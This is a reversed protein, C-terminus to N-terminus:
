NVESQLGVYVKELYPEISKHDILRMLEVLHVLLRKLRTKRFDKRNPELDLFFNLVVPSWRQVTNPTTAELQECYRGYGMVTRTSGRAEILSEGIARLEERFVLTDRWKDWDEAHNLQGDALDSRILEVAREVKVAHVNNGSYLYTLEQRYLEVWAMFASLRYVTSVLKYRQFYADHISNEVQKDPRSTLVRENLYVTPFHELVEATRSALERASLLLPDRFKQYLQELTQHQKWREFSRSFFYDKLVVGFISGLTSVIAGLVTLGFWTKLDLGLFM